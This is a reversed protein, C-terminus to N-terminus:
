KFRIELGTAYQTGDVFSAEAFFAEHEYFPLRLGFFPRVSDKYGGAHNGTVLDKLDARLKTWRVGGYPELKFIENITFLHSSEVAIQYETLDLRQNINGSVGPTGGPFRRNFFYQSRTVAMDLAIAPTVLTDPYLVAKFGVTVFGGLRDATLANTITTSPVKIGYDGVGLSTYYQFSEWPQYVLKAVAAGGSGDVSVDNGQGCAFTVGAATACGGNGQVSFNLAQDETNQYYTLLKLSGKPLQRASTALPEASLPGSFIFSLVLGLSILRMKEM